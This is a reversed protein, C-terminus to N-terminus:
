NSRNALARNRLRLRLQFASYAVARGGRYECDTMKGDKDAWVSFASKYGDLKVGHLVFSGDSFEHKQM